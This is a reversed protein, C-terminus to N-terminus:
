AALKEVGAAPLDGKEVTAQADEVLKELVVMMAKFDVKSANVIPEGIMARSPDYRMGLTHQMGANIISMIGRSLHNLKLLAVADDVSIKPDYGFKKRLQDTLYDNNGVLSVMNNTELAKRSVVATDPQAARELKRDMKKLKDATREADSMKGKAKRQGQEQGKPGRGKQEPGKAGQERANGPKAQAMAPIKEAKVVGETGIAEKM